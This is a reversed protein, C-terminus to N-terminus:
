MFDVKILFGPLGRANTIYARTSHSIRQMMPLVENYFGMYSLMIGIPVRAGFFVLGSKLQKLVSVRIDLSQIFNQQFQDDQIM